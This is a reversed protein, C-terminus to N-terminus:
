KALTMLNTFLRAPVISSIGHHASPNFTKRGSYQTVRLVASELQIHGILDRRGAAFGASGAVHLEHHIARERDASMVAGGDFHRLFGPFLIEKQEAQGRVLDGAASIPIVRPM